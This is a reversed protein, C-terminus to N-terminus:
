EFEYAGGIRKIELGPDLQSMRDLIVACYKPDYEVMYTRRKLQHAAVMTTGSGGFGDLVAQGPKTSNHILDGILVVPKMTPHQANSLPKDHNMVTAKIEGILMGELIKILEPKSMKKYDAMDDIVTAKTREDTFYHAAGPKWGYLCPEHKWQYDSRGMVLSKKNWILCQKLLLGADTFARRFNLGESDAHWVYWAGGPKTVQNMANFAQLLFEYFALGDMNDNAMKMGTAWNEFDVNYPPDTLVLDAEQGDMLRTLTEAKRTDGCILRHPGIQFIDGETIDGPSLDPIEYNDEKVEPEKLLMEPLDLGWDQVAALDWDAGIAAWDWEGFGVNDKIIFEKQQAETLGSARVVPVTKLGAEQCAKLRMNGGLAIMQDNVVIPRLNLMEPFDRISKVLQKFKADTITRPNEPNPKVLGIPLNEIQIGGGPRTQATETQKRKM